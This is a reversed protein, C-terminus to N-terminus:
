LKGEIYEAARRLLVPSDNMNGLSANCKVCLLGRVQGTAHCHDVCLNRTSVNNCIKCAGSQALFMADYEDKLMGYTTALHLSRIRDANNARWQKAQEPNNARYLRAKERHRDANQNYKEKIKDRDVNWYRDRSYCRRCLGKAYLKSGCQCTKTEIDM